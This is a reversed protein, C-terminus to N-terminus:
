REVDTGLPSPSSPPCRHVRCGVSSEVLRVSCRGSAVSEARLGADPSINRVMLAMLEQQLRAHRPFPSFLKETLLIHWAGPAFRTGLVGAKVSGFLKNTGFLGTIEGGVAWLPWRRLRTDCESLLPDMGGLSRM